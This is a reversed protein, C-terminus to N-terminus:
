RKEKGCIADPKEQRVSLLTLGLGRITALIGHLAPQDAIPGVLTTEGEQELIVALGDFWDSWQEQLHGKVRIQYVAPERSEHQERV